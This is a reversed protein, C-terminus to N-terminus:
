LQAATERPMTGMVTDLSRRLTQTADSVLILLDPVRQAYSAVFRSGQAGCLLVVALCLTLATTTVLGAAISRRVGRSCLSRVGPEIIAAAALAPLFPAFLPLSRRLLWLLLAAVPLGLILALGRKM